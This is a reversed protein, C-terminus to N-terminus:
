RPHVIGQPAAMRVGTPVTSRWELGFGSEGGDFVKRFAVAGPVGDDILRWVAFATVPQARPQDLLSTRLFDLRFEVVPRQNLVATRFIPQFRPDDQRAHHGNGSADLWIPVPEGGNLHLREADFWAMLGPIDSPTFPPKLLALESPVLRHIP